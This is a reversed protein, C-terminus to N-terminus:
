PRGGPKSTSVTPREVRASRPGLFEALLAAGVIEHSTFAGSSAADRLYNVFEEFRPEAQFRAEWEEPQWGSLVAM